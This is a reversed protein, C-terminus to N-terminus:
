ILGVWSGLAEGFHALLMFVFFRPTFSLVLFTQIRTKLLGCVLALFEVPLVPIVGFLVYLVWGWRNWLVTVVELEKVGVKKKIYPRGLRYALFYNIMMGITFGTAATLALSVPNLGFSAAAVVLAPSGLPVITGALITMFFIGIFGYERVFSKANLLFQMKSMDFFKIIFIVTLGVVLFVLGFILSTRVWSLKLLNVKGGTNSM